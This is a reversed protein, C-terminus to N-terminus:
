LAKEQYQFEETKPLSYLRNVFDEVRYKEEEFIKNKEV